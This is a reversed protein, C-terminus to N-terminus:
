RQLGNLLVALSLLKFTLMYRVASFFVSIKVVYPFDALSVPEDSAWTARNVCRM